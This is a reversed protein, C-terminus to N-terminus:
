GEERLLARARSLVTSTELKQMCDHHGLPCTRRGHNSCPSCPLRLSLAVGPARPGWRKVSTPGFVALAPCGMGAAVHVLGSDNGILLRARGLGAAVVALSEQTLDADLTCGSRVAELLAGDMPGGVLAIRHGEQRLAAAVEALRQAPWRKTEWAAGPAVAVWNAEPMLEVARRQASENVNVQVLGSSSVQAANAYLETTPLDDFIVDAGMLARLAQFPTRQVFHLRSPAACRAVKRSWLKNQLDIAVDFRGAVAELVARRSNKDKRNFTILADPVGQLLEAYAGETVWEIRASPYKKRLPAVVSTALVVDGLASYRILLISKM